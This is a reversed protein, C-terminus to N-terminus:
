VTDQKFDISLSSRSAVTRIAEVGQTQIIQVDFIDGASVDLKFHRSITMHNLRSIVVSVAIPGEIIQRPLFIYTHGGAFAAVNDQHRILV